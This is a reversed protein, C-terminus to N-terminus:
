YSWVMSARHTNRTSSTSSSLLSRIITARRPVHRPSPSSEVLTTTCTCNDSKGTEDGLVTTTGYSTHRQNIIADTNASNPSEPPTQPHYVARARKAWRKSWFSIMAYELLSAFVLSYLHIYTGTVSVSLSAHAWISTSRNSM